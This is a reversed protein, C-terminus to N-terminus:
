CALKGLGCEFARVPSAPDYVIVKGGTWHAVLEAIHDANGAVTVVSDRGIVCLDTLPEGEIPAKADSHQVGEIQDASIYGDKFAIKNEFVDYEVCRFKFLLM